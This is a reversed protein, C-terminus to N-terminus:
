LTWYTRIHKQAYGSLSCWFSQSFSVSLASLFLFSSFSVSFLLFSGYTSLNILWTTVRNGVTAKLVRRAERLIWSLIKKPVYSLGNQRHWSTRASYYVLWLITMRSKKKYDQSGFSQTATLIYQIVTTMEMTKVLSNSSFARATRGKYIRLETESREQGYKGTAYWNESRAIYSLACHKSASQNIIYLQIFIADLEVQVIAKLSQRSRSDSPVDNHRNATHKKSDDTSLIIM